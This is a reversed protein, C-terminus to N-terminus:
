DRAARKKYASLKPRKNMGNDRTPWLIGFVLAIFCSSAALCTTRLAVTRLLWLCCHPPSLPQTSSCYAVHDVQHSSWLLVRRRRRQQRRRGGGSSSSSSPTSVYVGLHVARRRANQWGDRGFHIQAVAGAGTGATRGAKTSKAGPIGREGGAARRRREAARARMCGRARGGPGAFHAEAQVTRLRM